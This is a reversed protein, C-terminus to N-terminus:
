KEKDNKDFYHKYRERFKDPQSPRNEDPEYIIEEEEKEPIDAYKAPIDKEMILGELNKNEGNNNLVYLFNNNHSCKLSKRGHFPMQPIDIQVLTNDQNYVMQHHEKDYKIGLPNNEGFLKYYIMLFQLLHVELENKSYKWEIYQKSNATKNNVMQELKTQHTLKKMAINKVSVTFYDKLLAHMDIDRDYVYQRDVLHPGIHRQIPYDESFSDRTKISNKDSYRNQNKQYGGQINNYIDLMKPIVLRRDDNAEDMNSSTLYEDYNNIFEILLGEMLTIETMYMNHRSSGKKLRSFDSLQENVEKEDTGKRWTLIPIFYGNGCHGGQIIVAYTKKKKNNTNEM